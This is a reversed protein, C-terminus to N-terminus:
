ARLGCRGPAVCGRQRDCDTLIHSVQRPRLLPNVPVFVGGAFSTAFISLVTEIRKDLYIAVRDGRNLGSARLGQGVDQTRAWLERYDLTSSKFSLASRDAWTAAADAILDHVQTRM